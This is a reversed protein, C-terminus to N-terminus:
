PLHLFPLIELILFVGIVVGLWTNYIVVRSVTLFLVNQLSSLFALVGFAEDDATSLCYMPTKHLLKYHFQKGKNQIFAYIKDFALHAVGAAIGIALYIIPLLWSWGRTLWFGVPILSAAITLNSLINKIMKPDRELINFFPSNLCILGKLLSDDGAIARIAVNGGHSHAIVFHDYDCFSKVHCRLKIAGDRRASFRNWPGWDIREVKYGNEELKKSLPSSEQTWPAGKAWTGHVLTVMHKKETM